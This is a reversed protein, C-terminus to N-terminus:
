LPRRGTLRMVQEQISQELLVRDIWDLDSLEIHHGMGSMMAHLSRVVAVPGDGGDLSAPPDVPPRTTRETVFRLSTSGEGIDMAVGTLASLPVEFTHSGMLLGTNRYALVEAQITLIHEGRLRAAVAGVILLGVLGLFGVSIVRVAGTTIIFFAIMIGAIMGIIGLTQLFRPRNKWRLVSSEPQEQAQIRQPALREIAAPAAALDVGETLSVCLAEVVAARRARALVWRGGDQMTLVLLHTTRPADGDASYRVQQQVSFGQLQPYPIRAIREGEGVLLSGTANSFSLRQPLRQRSFVATVALCELGIAGVIVRTMEPMGGLGAAAVGMVVLGFAVLALWGANVMRTRQVLALGDHHTQLLYRMLRKLISMQPIAGLEQLRSVMAAVVAGRMLCRSFPRSRPPPM